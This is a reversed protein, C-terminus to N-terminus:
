VPKVFYKSTEFSVETLDTRTTYQKGIFHFSILSNYMILYKKVLWKSAKVLASGKVAAKNNKNEKERNQLLRSTKDVTMRAHTTRAISKKHPILSQSYINKRQEDVNKFRAEKRKSLSSNITTSKTKNEKRRKMM